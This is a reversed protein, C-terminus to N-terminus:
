PPRSTSGCGAHETSTPRTSPRCIGPDRSPPTRAWTRSQERLRCVPGFHRRTACASRAGRSRRPSLGPNHCRDLDGIQQSRRASTIRVAPYRGDYVSASRSTSLARIAARLLSTIRHADRARVTIADSASARFNRISSAWSAATTARVLCWRRVKSTFLARGTFTTHMMECPADDYAVASNLSRTTRTRVRIQTPRSHSRDSSRPPARAPPCAPRICPRAALPRVCECEDTRWEGYVRCRSLISVSRSELTDGGCCALRRSGRSSDSGGAPWVCGKRVRCDEPFISGAVGFVSVRRMLVRALL